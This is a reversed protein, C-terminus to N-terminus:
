SFHGAARCCERQLVPLWSTCGTLCFCELSGMLLIPKKGLKKRLVRNETLLYEIAQRQRRNILGALILLLFQWPQFQLKM